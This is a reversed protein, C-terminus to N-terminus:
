LEDQYDVNIDVTVNKDWMALRRAMFILSDLGCVIYQIEYYKPILCNDGIYVIIICNGRREKWGIVGLILIIVVVLNFDLVTTLTLYLFM